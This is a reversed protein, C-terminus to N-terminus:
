RRQELVDLFEGKSEFKGLEFNKIIPVGKYNEMAKQSFSIIFALCSAVRSFDKIVEAEKLTKKPAKDMKTLLFEDDGKTVADFPARGIPYIQFGIEQLQQYAKEDQEPIILERSSPEPVLFIEPPDSFSDDLCEEIKLLTSVSPRLGSNEYSYVMTRSVGIRDALDGVSINKDMRIRKLKERDIRVYYGGRSSSVPPYAGSTFIDFFTQTTVASIGRRTHLVGDQLKLHRTHTGIILPCATLINSLNRMDNALSANLSDINLLFKLLLIFSRRRALLDYCSSKSDAQSIIFKEKELFHTVIEAIDAKLM